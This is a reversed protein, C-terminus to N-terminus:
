ILNVDVAAYVCFFLVCFWNCVYTRYITDFYWVIGTGYVM